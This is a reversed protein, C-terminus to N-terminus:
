ITCMVYSAIDILLFCFGSPSLFPNHFVFGFILAVAAGVILLGAGVWKLM